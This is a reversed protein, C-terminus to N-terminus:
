VPDSECTSEREADCIDTGGGGRAVDKAGDGGVLTDAGGNGVLTDNSGLGYIEDAGSGGSLTDNFSSGELIEVGGVYTDIGAGGTRQGRSVGLSFKIDDVAAGDYTDDDYSIMDEGLGGTFSDNGQGGVLIDDGDEGDLFDVGDGGILTDDGDGGYFTDFGDGGDLADDGDGGDFTDNDGDGALTDDGDGGTIYDMGDGGSVDLPITATVADGLFGEGWVVDAGGRALVYIKEVTALGTVDAVHNANDDLSVQTASIFIDDNDETGLITLADETGTSLALAIPVGDFSGSGTMDITIEDDATTGTVAVSTTATSGTCTLAAGGTVAVTLVGATLKLTLEHDDAVTVTAAAGATSCSSAVAVAPVATIGLAAIGLLMASVLTRGRSPIAGHKSRRM